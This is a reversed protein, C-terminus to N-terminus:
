RWCCRTLRQHDIADNSIMYISPSFLVIITPPIFVLGATLCGQLGKKQLHLGDSLFDFLCLSVGLFATLMSITSFFRFLQSIEPQNVALEIARALGSTAHPHHLLAFLGHTGDKPVASMIVAVWALYCFLPFLSGLFIVKRLQAIDDEFYDRLTPVIIAFGFSAILLMLASQVHHWDGGQLHVLSGKPAILFLLMFYVALKVYMLVSNVKDVLYVGFYVLIAFIAVYVITTMQVPLPISYQSLFGEFLDSGGAIYASLLAYLLALYVIWTVNKGIKGLTLEAMSIMNAGRPLYLNVELIFFACMTMAFWCIILAISTNFLGGAATGIPLALM